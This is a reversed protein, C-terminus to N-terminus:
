HVKLMVIKAFYLIEIDYVFLILHLLVFTKYLFSM